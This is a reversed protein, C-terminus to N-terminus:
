DKRPLGGEINEQCERGNLDGHALYYNVLQDALFSLFERYSQTYEAEDM